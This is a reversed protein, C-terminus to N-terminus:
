RATPHYIMRGWTAAKTHPHGPVGPSRGEIVHGKWIRGAADSWHVMWLGALVDGGRPPDDAASLLKWPVAYEIVYGRGDANERFAGQWGQAIMTQRHRDMGYALQLCPRQEPRYYWMILGVLKENAKRSSQQPDNRRPDDAPLCADVPWGLARDTSLWVQVSGGRWCLDPVAQESEPFISNRLPQPDGVQAGLYLSEADYLMYGRVYYHDGYPPQCRVEFGGSFDWEGLDGDVVVPRPAPLVHLTDYRSVSYPVGKEKGRTDDAPLERLFRAPAFALPRPTQLPDADFEMAEGATLERKPGRDGHRGAMVKGAYVQVATSGCDTLAVGFETGLDIIRTTPTNLSFGRAQEPVKVLARGKYLIGRNGDVLEVEAPGELLLRAGSQFTIQAVGTVLDLRGPGLSQGPQPTVSTGWSCGLSDTLRAVVEQGAPLRPSLIRRGALVICFAVVAALAVLGLGWRLPRRFRKKTASTTLSRDLGSGDSTERSRSRSLSQYPPDGPGGTESRDRDPRSVRGVLPEDGVFEMLCAQPTERILMAQHAWAALQECRAPAAALMTQFESLEAPSLQNDLYRVLLDEFYADHPTAQSQDPM